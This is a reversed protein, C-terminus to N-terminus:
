TEGPPRTITEILSTIDILPRLQGGTHVVERVHAPTAGAGAYPAIAARSVRLHQDFGEFALAFSPDAVIVMWRLAVGSPAHGLLRALDFVPVFAGRFGVIGILDPRRTPLPTIARDAFLSAIEGMRIAHPSSGVQIALVDELEEAPHRAVSFSRDFADRLDAALVRPKM